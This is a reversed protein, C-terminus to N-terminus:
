LTSINRIIDNKDKKTPNSLAKTISKLDTYILNNTHGNMRIHKLADHIAYTEALFITMQPSLRGKITKNETIIAYEVGENM